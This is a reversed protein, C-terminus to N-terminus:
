LLKQTTFWGASCTTPLVSWYFQFTVFFMKMMKHLWGGIGTAV